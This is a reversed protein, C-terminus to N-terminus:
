RVNWIKHQQISLRYGPNKLIMEICYELNEQMLEFRQKETGLFLPSLLYADAPPLTSIEPINGGFEVPFRFENVKHNAFMIKLVSSNVKPSCAIYDLGDPPVNTGNTEISQFYGREKFFKVIDSSLQLTPEGGTWIINKCPFETVVEYIENLTMEDGKSWDTDCFWCDLNCHSLRIFISPIGARLGEGQLSYFIERVKM